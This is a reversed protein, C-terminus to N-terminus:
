RQWETSRQKNFAEALAEGRDLAQEACKLYDERKRFQWWGAEEAKILYRDCLAIEVRILDRLVVKHTWRALPLERESHPNFM